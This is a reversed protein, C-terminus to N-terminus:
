VGDGFVMACSVKEFKFLVRECENVLLFVFNHKFTKGLNFM